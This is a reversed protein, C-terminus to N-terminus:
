FISIYQQTMVNVALQITTTKTGGPGSDPTWTQTITAIVPTSNTKSFETTGSKYAFTIKPMDDNTLYTNNQRLGAKLYKITTANSITNSIDSPVLINKFLCKNAIYDVIAQGEEGTKAGDTVFSEKFLIKLGLNPYIYKGGSGAGSLLQSGPAVFRGIVYPNQSQPLVVANRVVMGHPYAYANRYLVLVDAGTTDFGYDKHIFEKPYVRGLNADPVFKMGGVIVADSENEIKGVAINSGIVVTPSLLLGTIKPAFFTLYSDQGLSNVERDGYIAFSKIVKLFPALIKARAIDSQPFDDLKDVTITMSNITNNVLGQALDASYFKFIENDLIEQWQGFVKSSVTYGGRTNVELGQQTPLDIEKNVRLVYDCQVDVSNLLMTNTRGASGRDDFVYSTANKYYKYTGLAGEPKYFPSAMLNFMHNKGLKNEFVEQYIIGLQNETTSTAGQLNSGAVTVQIKDLGQLTPM